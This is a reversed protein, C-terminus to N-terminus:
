SGRCCPARYAGHRPRARAVTNAWWVPTWRPRALPRPTPVFVVDAGGAGGASPSGGRSLERGARECQGGERGLRATALDQPERFVVREQPATRQGPRAPPAGRRARTPERTGAAVARACALLTECALRPPARAGPTTERAAPSEPHQAGDLVPSGCDERGADRVNIRRRPARRDVWPHRGALLGLWLHHQADIPAPAVPRVLEVRGEVVRMLRQAAMTQGGM